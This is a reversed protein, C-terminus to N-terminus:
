IRVMWYTDADTAVLTPLTFHTATSGWPYGQASFAADLDPYDAKALSSGDAPVWGEEGGPDVGLRMSGSPVAETVAAALGDLQDPLGEVSPLRVMGPQQEHIFQRPIDAGRHRQRALEARVLRGVKGRLPPM